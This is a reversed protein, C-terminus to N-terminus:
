GLNRGEVYNIFRSMLLLRQLAGERPIRDEDALDPGDPWNEALAIAKEVDFMKAIRPVTALQRLEEIMRPRQWALKHQWDANHRGTLRTTRQAEPMRGALMARALWRPTGDHLFMDTPLGACFEFFPRYATPDRQEMGYIQEFGHYIYSFDGWASEQLLLMDAFRDRVPYRPNPFGAALARDVVGSALAFDERLPSAASYINTAGRVRRQWHWLADPVFPMVALAAFRRLMSRDDDAQQLARYLQRWRLRGLYEAFGWSGDASVTMNGFEALLVRDCGAERASRWLRHYATLNGLGHAMTGTAYFMEVAMEDIAMGANDEFHPTIRPHMACFQEVFPREDCFRGPLSPLAAGAEPVRTFADIRQDGPLIDLAKVAVLSSDLGGSLMVAPRSSGALAARTGDELLHHAQAVLDQRSAKAAPPVNRIDYYRQTTATRATLTVRSGLPVRNVGIFCSQSENSTNFWAIDSLKRDDLRQEVGAAFIPRPISSAIIRETGAHYHLPPARLPSRALRLTRADEDFTITAYEGILKHDTADGWHLLARAYLRAIDTSNGSVPADMGLDRAIEPLNDIHGSFLVM